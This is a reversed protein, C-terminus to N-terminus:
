LRFSSIVQYFIFLLLMVLPYKLYRSLAYRSQPASASGKWLRVELLWLAAPHPPLSSPANIQQPLGQSFHQLPLCLNRAEADQLIKGKLSIHYSTIIISFTCVTWFSSGLVCQETIVPLFHNSLFFYKRISVSVCSKCSEAKPFYGTTRMLILSLESHM